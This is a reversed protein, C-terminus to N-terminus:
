RAPARGEFGVRRRDDGRRWVAADDSARPASLSMVGIGAAAIGFTKVLGFVLLGIAVGPSHDALVLDRLGHPNLAFLGGLLLAAAAAGIALNIALVRILPQNFRIPFRHFRSM